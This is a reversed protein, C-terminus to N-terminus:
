LANPYRTKWADWWDPDDTLHRLAEHHTRGVGYERYCSSFEFSAYYAVWVGESANYSIELKAGDNARSRPERWGEVGQAILSLRWDVSDEPTNQLDMLSKNTLKPLKNLAM